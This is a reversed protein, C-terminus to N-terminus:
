VEHGRPKGTVRSVTDCRGPFTSVLGGAARRDIAFIGEDALSPGVAITM